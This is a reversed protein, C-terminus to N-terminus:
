CQGAVLCFREEIMDFQVTDTGHQINAAVVAFEGHAQTGRLRLEVGRYKIQGCYTYQTSLMGTIRPLGPSYPKDFSVQLMIIERASVIQM